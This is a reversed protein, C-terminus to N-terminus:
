LALNLKGTEKSETGEDILVDGAREKNGYDYYFQEINIRSNPKVTFQYDEQKARTKQADNLMNRREFGARFRGSTKSDFHGANHANNETYKDKYEKVYKDVNAGHGYLLGFDNRVNGEVIHDFDIGSAKSTETNRVSNNLNHLMYSGNEVVEKYDKSHDNFGKITGDIEKSKFPETGRESVNSEQLVYRSRRSFAREYGNAGFASVGKKKYHETKAQLDKGFLKHEHHLFRDDTINGYTYSNRKREEREKIWDLRIKRYQEPDSIALHYIHDHILDKSQGTFEREIRGKGDEVSNFGIGTQKIDGNFEKAVNKEPQEDEDPYQEFTVKKCKDENTKREM